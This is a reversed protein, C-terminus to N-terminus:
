RVPGQAVLHLTHAASICRVKRGLLNLLFEVREGKTRVVIGQFGVSQGNKVKILDGKRFRRIESFKLQGTSERFKLNEVVGDPVKSPTGDQSFSLLRQIGLTNNIRHWPEASLQFHVFIYGPFLAERQHIVKGNKIKEIEIQPWYTTFSQRELNEIARRDQSPRSKAAYWNATM